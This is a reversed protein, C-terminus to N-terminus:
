AKTRCFYRLDKRVLKFWSFCCTPASVFNKENRTHQYCQVFFSCPPPPPIGKRFIAPIISPPPGSRPLSYWIGVKVPLQMKRPKPPRTIQVQVWTPHSAQAAKAQLSLFPHLPHSPPLVFMLTLLSSSLGEMDSGPVTGPLKLILKSCSINM